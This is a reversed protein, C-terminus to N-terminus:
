SESTKEEGDKTYSLTQKEDEQQVQLTYYSEEGEQGQVEYVEKVTWESYNSNSFAEKVKEPLEEFTIEKKEKENELSIVAINDNQSLIAMSPFVTLSFFAMALVLSIKKM